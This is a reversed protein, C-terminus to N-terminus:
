PLKEKFVSRKQVAPVSNLLPYFFSILPNVFRRPSRLAMWLPVMRAGLDRKVSYTTLGLELQKMGTNIATEIVKHGAFMYLSDNAARTRGFFMWRLLENDFFLLAHGILEGEHHFLLVRSCGGPLRSFRRYFEPTLVERQYEDAQNHVILFQECLEEALHEFDAVLSCTVGQGELRKLHRLLKSRYYSKMAALYEGISTWEIDLCTNPLNDVTRYGRESFCQMLERDAEGFDRVVILFAGHRRAVDELTAAVLAVVAQSDQRDALVIPSGLNIPTGCEQMRVRMFGPFLIRVWDLITKLLRPAFIALDTTVTYTCTVGLPTGSDDSIMLYLYDFDNLGSQEVVQFFEHSYVRSQHELIQNWQERPVDALREYIKIQM